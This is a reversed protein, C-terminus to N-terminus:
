QASIAAIGIGGPVLQKLDAREALIRAAQRMLDDHRRGDPHGGGAASIDVLVDVDVGDARADRVRIDCWGDATLPALAASIVADVHKLDLLDALVELASGTLVFTTPGAVDVVVATAGDDLAARAADRGYTPVPRAQPNWLALSDVGTFALLGKEGATNVMSVVAMHSDKDAGTEDVADLVAVVTALLRADRLARAVSTVPITGAGAGALTLRVDLDVRGDDGPFAPSALSRGAGNVDFPHSVAVVSAM